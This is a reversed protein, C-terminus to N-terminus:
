AIAKTAQTQRAIHFTLLPVSRSVDDHVGVRKLRFLDAPRGPELGVDTTVAAHYGAARAGAAAAESYDGYPYSLVPVVNVRERRLVDLSCRLEHKLQEPDVRGLAAHTCTHSGFAIGHDSMERAEEWNLFRREAPAQVDALQGLRFLLDDRAEDPLTKAFEILSDVADGAERGKAARFEPCRRGLPALVERLPGMSGRLRQHRLLHGLQDWWLWASTGILDTPLFITAPAQYARLLPYAYHHNDLWGDDFTIACYRAEPDWSHNQWMGLLDHLSLLTFHDTFFALHREFTEPTVYMGPQVFTTELERRPIV